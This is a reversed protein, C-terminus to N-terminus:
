IIQWQTGEIRATRMAAWLSLTFLLNLGQATKGILEQLFFLFMM